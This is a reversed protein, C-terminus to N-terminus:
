VADYPFCGVEPPNKENGPRVLYFSIPITHRAHNPFDEIMRVFARHAPLALAYIYGPSNMRMFLQGLATLFHETFAQPLRPEGKAEILLRRHLRSARIDPGRELRKGVFVHFGRHRLYGAVAEKVDEEKL